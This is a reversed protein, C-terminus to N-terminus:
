EIWAQTYQWIGGTTGVGLGEWVQVSVEDM